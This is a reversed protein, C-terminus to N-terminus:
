FHYCNIKTKEQGNIFCYPRNSNSFILRYATLNPLEPIELNSYTTRLSQRYWAYSLLGESIVSTDVRRDEGFRFYWLAFTAQDDNTFILANEPVTDLVAQGFLEARDDNSADVKPLVVYIRIILFLILLPLLYWGRNQSRENIYSLIRDVSLGVWLSFALITPILYVFSDYSAYFLAFLGYALFIWASLLILKKHEKSDLVTFIGIAVVPLSFNEVLIGAWARARELALNVSFYSQYLYGSVLQYFSNFTVPNFWNVAPQHAARFPLILYVAAGTLLGLFCKLLHPMASIKLEESDVFLLPLLLLTTLHNGLALGFLLGRLFDEYPKNGMRITQYLIGITLLSQLGYVETIVAQSWVLPSLGFILAAFAASICGYKSEKQFYFITQYVLLAALITCFASLLNTRFALTGIPIWQFLKAIVLYLPYGTPHPVGNVHVATIFDGGDAGGNAWSLGPALTLFYASGLILVIGFPFVIKRIM